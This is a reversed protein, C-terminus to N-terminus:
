LRILKMQLHTHWPVFDKDRTVLTLNYSLATYAILSDALFTTVGKRKLQFRLDTVPAAWDTLKYIPIEGFYKKYKKLQHVDKAGVCIENFIVENIGLDGSDIISELFTVAESPKNKLFDIWVSSDILYM